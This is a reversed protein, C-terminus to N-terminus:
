ELQNESVEKIRSTTIRFVAEFRKRWFDNKFWLIEFPLLGVILVVAYILSALLVQPLVDVLSYSYMCAQVMVMVFFFGMTMLLICFAMWFSFRVPGFKKRCLFAALPFSVM